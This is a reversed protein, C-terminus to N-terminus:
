EPANKEMEAAVAQAIIGAATLLQYPHSAFDQDSAFAIVGAARIGLARLTRIRHSSSSRSLPWSLRPSPLASRLGSARNTQNPGRLRLPRLLIGM